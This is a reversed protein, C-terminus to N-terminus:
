HDKVLTLFTRREIFGQSELSQGLAFLSGLSIEKARLVPRVYRGDGTGWREHGSGDGKGFQKLGLHDRLIERVRRTQYHKHQM